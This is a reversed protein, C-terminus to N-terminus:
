IEELRLNISDIQNKYYLATKEAQEKKRQFDEKDHTLISKITVLAEEKTKVGEETEMVLVGEYNRDRINRNDKWAM